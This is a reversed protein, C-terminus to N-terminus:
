ERHDGDPRQDEHGHQGAVRVIGGIIFSVILNMPSAGQPRRTAARRSHLNQRCVLAHGLSCLGHRRMLRVFGACALNDLSAAWGSATLDGLLDVILQPLLDNSLYKFCDLLLHHLGNLALASISASFTSSSTM